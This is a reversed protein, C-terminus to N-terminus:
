LISMIDKMLESPLKTLILKRSGFKLDIKSFYNAEHLENLLESITPISFKNLVIVKNLAKYDVCMRWSDDEKKVLIVPSSFPSVSEKIAGTQLLENVQKEIEDRHHYAYKYPRVNIPEAGRKM